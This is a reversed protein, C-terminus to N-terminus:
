NIVLLNLVSHRSKEKDVGVRHNIAGVIRKDVSRHGVATAFVRRRYKAKDVTDVVYEFLFIRRVYRNCEVWRVECEAVVEARRVLRLTRGRGFADLKGQRPNLFDDVQKTNLLNHYIFVFGVVNYACQCFFGFLITKLHKHYRGVLVVVLKHRVIDLNVLWFLVVGVYFDNVSLLKTSLCSQLIRQLKDVNESKPAVRRVIHFAYGAYAFFGSVFKNM